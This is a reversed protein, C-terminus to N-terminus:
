TMPPATNACGATSARMGPRPTRSPQRPRGRTSASRTTTRPTPLRNSPVPPGRCGRRTRGNAANSTSQINHNRARSSPRPRDVDRSRVRNSAPGARRSEGRAPTIVSIMMAIAADVNAADALAADHDVHQRDSLQHRQQHENGDPQERDIWGAPSRDAASGSRRLPSRAATSKRTRRNRPRGPRPRRSAPGRRATGKASITVMAHTAAIMVSACTTASPVSGSRAENEVGTTLAAATKMPLRPASSKQHSSTPKPCYCPAPRTRCGCDRRARRARRCGAKKPRTCGRNRVGTVATIKVAATDSTRPKGAAICRQCGDAGDAPQHNVDERTRRGDPQPIWTKGRGTRGATNVTGNPGQDGRERDGDAQRNEGARRRLLPVGTRHRQEGAGSKATARM